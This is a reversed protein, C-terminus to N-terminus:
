NGRGDTFTYEGEEDEKTNENFISWDNRELFGVLKKGKRNVIRDKTKRGSRGKGGIREDEEEVKGGERGTRANFDGGRM